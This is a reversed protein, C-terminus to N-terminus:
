SELREEMADGAGTDRVGAEGLWGGAVWSNLGRCIALSSKRGGEVQVQSMSWADCLRHPVGQLTIRM